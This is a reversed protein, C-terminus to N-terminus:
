LHYPNKMKTEQSVKPKCMLTISAREGFDGSKGLSSKPKFTELRDWILDNGKPLIKSSETRIAQREAVARSSPSPVTAKELFSEEVKYTPCQLSATAESGEAQRM